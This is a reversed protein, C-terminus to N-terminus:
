EDVFVIEVKAVRGDKYTVWVPYYGDGYGSSVVVGAGPHGATFNLQGGQEPKSTAHCAGAYCFKGEVPNRNHKPEELWRGWAILENPTAQCEEVRTEYSGPMPNVKKRGKIKSTTGNPPVWQWLKNTELDRYIPHEGVGTADKTWNSDIYCPDGLMIQGSDVAVNGIQVRKM